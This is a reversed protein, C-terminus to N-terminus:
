ALARRMLPEMDELTSPEFLGQRLFARINPMVRLARDIEPNSGAVYAGINVLDEADRYTALTARLAQAATQHSETAVDIMTRSVSELVDVAPYHGSSALDRSLVVHGDLISRVADGVPDNM